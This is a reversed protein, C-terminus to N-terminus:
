SGQRYHEGETLPPVGHTPRPNGALQARIAEALADLQNRAPLKNYNPGPRLVFGDGSFRPFVHLHVHFVEQGAAKGDALFLNIGECQVGSKRLARSIRQAIAFLHGGVKEDLDDISTVHVNPVILVHGPNVPQTDMFACCLRDRYVISAPARGSVIDCFICDSM